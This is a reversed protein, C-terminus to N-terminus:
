KEKDGTVKKVAKKIMIISDKTGAVSGKLLILNNDKNIKIIRLNQVTKKVGGMRGAMRKNKWVRAPFTNMGISGPARHRDSQGRTKPGGSFGWRKVVGQFGKGKTVGTVDVYEGEKFIGVDLVNGVKYEENNEIRLEKIYRYPKLNVKKFVGIQPKNLRGEKEEKYAIRLANYKEKGNKKIEIIPCPGASIVTVTIDKGTEDFIRTMGIKRGILGIKGSM